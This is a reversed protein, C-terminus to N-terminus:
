TRQAPVWKLGSCLRTTLLVLAASTPCLPDHQLLSPSHAPLSLDNPQSEKVVIVRIKWMWKCKWVLRILFTHLAEGRGAAIGMDEAARGQVADRIAPSCAGGILSCLKPYGRFRRSLGRTLFSASHWQSWKAARSLFLCPAKVEALTRHM